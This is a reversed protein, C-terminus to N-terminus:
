SIVQVYIHGFSGAYWHPPATGIGYKRLYVGKLNQKLREWNTPMFYPRIKERSHIINMIGITLNHVNSCQGLTSQAKM